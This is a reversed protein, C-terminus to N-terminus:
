RNGAKKYYKNHWLRRAGCRRFVRRIYARSRRRYSM